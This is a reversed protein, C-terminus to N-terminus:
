IAIYLGYIQMKYTWHHVPLPFFKYNKVALTLEAIDKANSSGMPQM